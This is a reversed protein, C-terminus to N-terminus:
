LCVCSVQVPKKDHLLSGTSGRNEPHSEESAEWKNARDVNESRRSGKNYEYEVFIAIWLSFLMQLVTSNHVLVYVPVYMVSVLNLIHCFENPSLKVTTGM